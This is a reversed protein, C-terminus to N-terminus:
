AEGVYAGERKLLDAIANMVREVILQHTERTDERCYLDSFDLPAGFVVTASQGFGPFKWHNVGTLATPIVTPRTDFIIKGVGRNGKGLRGDRHRTGEPFLMVKQDALLQNIVRNAKVDRGRRVPFAGWSSYLLRPVLKQFLEEKAPAWVMQLPHHRVIAWPLFITDYASIHNSTFLVGGSDPIQGAGKSSFRNLASAYFGIVWCSFTVWSRRLFSVKM